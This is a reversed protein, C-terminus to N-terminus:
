RTLARRTGDPEFGRSALLELLRAHGNLLRPIRMKIGDNFTLAYWGMGANFRVERLEHWQKEKRGTWPTQFRIGSEDYSGRTRYGEIFFYATALGLFGSIGGIPAYQGRHNVFFMVYLMGLMLLGTVSGFAFIFGGYRLEGDATSQAAKAVFYSILAMAITAGIAGAMRLGYIV